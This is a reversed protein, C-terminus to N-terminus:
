HCATCIGYFTVDHHTVAAFNHAASTPVSPVRACPVHRIRHCRTCVLHHHHKTALAYHVSGRDVQIRELFEEELLLAVTRYVSAEHIRVRQSLEQVTCPVRSMALARVVARRSKTIRYGRERLATLIRRTANTM